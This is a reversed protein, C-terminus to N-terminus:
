TQQQACGAIICTSGTTHLHTRAWGRSHTDTLLLTNTAQLHPICSTTAHTYPNMGRQHKDRAHESTRQLKCTTSHSNTHRTCSAACQLLGVDAASICIANPVTCSHRSEPRQPNHEDRHKHQNGLPAALAGGGWSSSNATCVDPPRGIALRLHSAATPKGRTCEAKM